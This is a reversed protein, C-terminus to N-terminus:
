YVYPTAAGAVTPSAYKDLIALVETNHLLEKRYTISYDGITESEADMGSKRHKWIVSCLMWMALELDGAETDSLFTTSNDFDYGAQYSVRYGSISQGFQLGGASYIIGATRDIHYYQSNITEWEDENLGSNRRQLTVAAATPIPHRNLILVGATDTSYEEETFTSLKVRFGLYNEIFETTADIIRDMVNEQTTTLSSVGLFDM